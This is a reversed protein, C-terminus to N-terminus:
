VLVASTGTSHQLKKYAEPFGSETLANFNSLVHATLGRPDGGLMGKYRKLDRESTDTTFLCEFEKASMPIRGLDLVLEAALNRAERDQAVEQVSLEPWRKRL